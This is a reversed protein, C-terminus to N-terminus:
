AHGEVFKTISDSLEELADILRRRAEDKMDAYYGGRKFDFENAYSCCGLHDDGEVYDLGPIRAVVRVTCWAWENGGELEDYIRQECERDFDDDGSCMCNGEVPTYEEFVEITYEIESDSIRM